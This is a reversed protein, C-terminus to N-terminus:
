PNQPHLLPNEGVKTDAPHVRQRIQRRNFKLGKPTVSRQAALLWCCDAYSLSPLCLVPRSSQGAHSIGRADTQLGVRGNNM